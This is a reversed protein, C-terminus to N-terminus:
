KAIMRVSGRGHGDTTSWVIHAVDVDVGGIRDNIKEVVEVPGGRKPVRLVGRGADISGGWYIFDADSAIKKTEIAIRQAIPTHAGSVKTARLISEGSAFYLWDSDVVINRSTVSFGDALSEVMGGIKSMTQLSKQPCDIWFMHKADQGLTCIEPKRPLISSVRKTRKDYQMITFDGTWFVYDDDVLLVGPQSQLEPHSPPDVRYIEMRTGGHKLISATVGDSSVTEYVYTADVAVDAPEESARHDVWSFTGSDLDVNIVGCGNLDCAAVFANSGDLAIAGASRLGDAIIIRHAQHAKPRTSSISTISMSATIRKEQVVRTENCNCRCGMVCALILVIIWVFKM